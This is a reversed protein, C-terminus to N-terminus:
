VATSAAPANHSWFKDLSQVMEVLEHLGAPKVLYYQAGLKSATTQDRELNSSSLIVFPTENLEPRQSKWRLVDFGDVRPMKLDLLVLSPFPRHYSLYEIAQEGDWVYQLSANLGSKQMAMEVLLKFADDDDVLLITPNM